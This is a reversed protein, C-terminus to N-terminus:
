GADTVEAALAPESPSGDRRADLLRRQAVTMADILLGQESPDLAEGIGQVFAAFRERDPVQAKRAARHAAIARIAVTALRAHLLDDAGYRERLGLALRELLGRSDPWDIEAQALADRDARKTLVARLLTKSM